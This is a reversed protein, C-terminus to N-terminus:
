HFVYDNLYKILWNLITPQFYFNKINLINLSTKHKLERKVEQNASTTTPKNTQKNTERHKEGM